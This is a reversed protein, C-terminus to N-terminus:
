APAAIGVEFFCLFLYTSQMIRWPHPAGGSVMTWPLCQHSCGVSQGGLHVHTPLLGASEGWTSLYPIPAVEAMTVEPLM